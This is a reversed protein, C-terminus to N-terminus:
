DLRVVKGPNMINDPDISRKIAAMVDVGTGHELQLFRRKGQGIGHEGTCTGQMDIAIDNLTEIFRDARQVEARDTMDVLLLVHFNGDGVHGLIPATFGLTQALAQAATVAEALRSIPVCVDTSMGRKHPALRCGAWYVDHLCAM